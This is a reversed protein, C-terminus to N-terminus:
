AKAPLKSVLRMSVTMGELQYHPKLLFQARYYGPNEEDERLEVQAESLPRRAKIDEGSTSDCVYNLIWNQLWTELQDRSMTSGVKMYIMKKLYHAFRSVAFIYPLRAGLAASKQEDPDAYKPVKRLSQASIFAARDSNKEHILPILGLASSLENERRGGIAVETPCKMDIEGDATPFTHVTLDTVIGGSEYGRIQSCWGYYDFAQNINTGMLYAANSWTYKSHDGTATEETFEFGEVPNKKPDYPLRALFRPLCLGLYRADESERLSRWQAYDASELLSALDPPTNLDLWSDMGLLNPSTGSIFPCHAAAAVQAMGKLLAVDLPMHDFYYDAIICGYPEGGLVDYEGGYITKFIPSQDWKAGPYRALSKGLAEKSVNLVKIKLKPGTNSHDVLHKLGRWSGELKQFDEYHLIENLQKSLQRDIEAILAEVTEIVDRSITVTGQLAARVLEAFLEKVREQQADTSARTGKFLEDLVSSAREQITGVVAQPAQQENRESAM